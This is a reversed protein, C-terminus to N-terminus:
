DFKSKLMEVEDRKLFRSFIETGSTLSESMIEYTKYVCDFKWCVEEGYMNKYTTEEKEAIAKAQDEADEDCIADILYFREEWIDDDKGNVRCEVFVNVGYWM